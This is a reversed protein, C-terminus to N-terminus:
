RSGGSEAQDPVSVQVPRYPAYRPVYFTDAYDGMRFVQAPYAPPVDLHPRYAPVRAFGVEPEVTDPEELISSLLSKKAAAPAASPAPVSVDSASAVTISGDGLGVVGGLAVVAAAALVSFCILRPSANM